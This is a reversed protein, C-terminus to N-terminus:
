RLTMSRVRNCALVKGFDDGTQAFVFGHHHGIRSQEFETYGVHDGHYEVLGLNGILNEGVHFWIGGYRVHFVADFGELLRASKIMAMPPPEAM